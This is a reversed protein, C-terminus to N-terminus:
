YILTTPDIGNEALVREDNEVRAIAGRRRVDAAPTLAIIKRGDFEFRTRYQDAVYDHGEDFFDVRVPDGTGLFM